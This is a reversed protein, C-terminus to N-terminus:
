SRKGSRQSWRAFAKTGDLVRWRATLCCRSASYRQTGYSYGDYGFHTKIHRAYAPLQDTAIQVPGKVRKRVDGVFDEGTTWDRRGILHSFVLKTDADIAAWLWFDGRGEKKLM